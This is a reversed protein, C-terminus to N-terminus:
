LKIVQRFVATKQPTIAGDTHFHGFYWHRYTVIDEFYSLLRNDQYIRSAKGTSQILWSALAKEDCTHTIIYDVKNNVKKLNAIGEDLDSFTPTEQPWWSLGEKRYSKDISTAGGFVFISKGEINYVQGRMLHIIDQRIFRVKGGQWEEVPYTSLMDYNEHNGDAFLITFPLKSFKDLTDEYTANSWVGGFDGAIIVYDNKTLYSNNSAFETLKDFNILGHTDGTVFIM